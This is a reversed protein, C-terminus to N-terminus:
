FGSGETKTGAQKELIPDARVPEGLLLCLRRGFVEGSPQTVPFSCTMSETLMGVVFFSRGDKLRVTKPLFDRQEVRMADVQLTKM